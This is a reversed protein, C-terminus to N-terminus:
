KLISKIWASYFQVNTFVGVGLCQKSGGATYSSIGILLVEAGSRVVLPGGSDGACTGGVATRGEALLTRSDRSQIRLLTKENFEYTNILYERILPDLISINSSALAKLQVSFLQESPDQLLNPPTTMGWGSASLDMKDLLHFEQDLKHPFNEDALAIPKLNNTSSIKSTLTIIAIDHAVVDSQDFEPHIFIKKIGPLSSLEKLKGTPSKGKLSISSSDDSWVCHAATLLADERILVAGCFHTGSRSQISLQWPALDGAIATGGIIREQARGYLCISLTMIFLIKKM